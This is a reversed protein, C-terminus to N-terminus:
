CDNCFSEFGSLPAAIIELDSAFGLKNIHKSIIRAQKKGGHSILKKPIQVEYKWSKSFFDFRISIKKKGRRFPFERPLHNTKSKM